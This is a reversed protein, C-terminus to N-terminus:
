QSTNGFFHEIQLCGQSQQGSPKFGYKCRKPWVSSGEGNLSSQNQSRLVKIRGGRGGAGVVILDGTSSIRAKANIISSIGIRRNEKYDSGGPARVRSSQGHMLAERNTDSSAKPRLISSNLVAVDEIFIAQTQPKFMPNSHENVVTSIESADTLFCTDREHDLNISGTDKLKKIREKAKELKKLSHTEGRGLLNCQAMLEYSRISDGGFRRM